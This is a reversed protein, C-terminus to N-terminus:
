PREISGTTFAWNLKVPKDLYECELHVVYTTNAKLASKPILAIVGDNHEIGSTPPKEPSFFHCPVDKGSSKEKLRAVSQKITSLEDFFSVTIPYGATQEEDSSLTRPNEPVMRLYIGTGNGPPYAVWKPTDTSEAAASGLDVVTRQKGAIGMGIRITSPDIMRSRHFLTSLQTDINTDLAGWGVVSNEAAKKGEASYGEKGEEESHPDPANSHRALYKAHMQCGYALTFDYDVKGVGAEERRRNFLAYAKAHEALADIIEAEVSLREGTERAGPTKSALGAKAIKRWEAAWRKAFTSIMTEAEKATGPKSKAAKAQEILADAREKADSFRTGIVGALFRAEESAGKQILEGAVKLGQDAYATEVKPTDQAAATLLVSALLLGSGIRMRDM